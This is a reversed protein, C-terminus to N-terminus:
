VPEEEEGGEDEDEKEDGGKKRTEKMPMTVVEATQGGTRLGPPSWNGM